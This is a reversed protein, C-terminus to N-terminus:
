NNNSDRLIYQAAGLVADQKSESADKMMLILKQTAPSLEKGTWLWNPDCGEIESIYAILKKSPERKDTAWKSVLSQDVGYDDAIAQQLVSKGNTKRVKVIRNYITEKNM